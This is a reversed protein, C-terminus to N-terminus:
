SLATLTLTARYTGSGSDVPIKLGLEAGLKASGRTHGNPAFGLTASTALGPGGDIGSAVAAGAVAGAGAEVVAPAWGLAAGGIKKDGSVFDGVQASLSWAAGSLRTDTVRIPNIAGTAALHDGKDQATGLDVIGNTGDVKWVFEGPAADPVAVQLTQEDPAGAHTLTVKDVVSNVAKDAGKAESRLTEVTIAEGTVKVVSYNRVYEQNIVSGYWANPAKVDYYKSGSASNATVYLVQGDQAEVTAQGPVEAANAIAGDKILYSRTYSHDHGQLVLDFGLDSITKPMNARRDVIDSDAQHAAVSYISHHFALVKWKVGAGHEAVVKQMFANHSAYDRSNSNLNVFLVDKYIFWYDGGSSTGSSAAGATTDLNPVNFHQEYAKSGVDHNGNTVVLPLSTLQSPALFATYHDENAAKEVQDGVSFLMEADPYAASAVNLTDTWGAQDAAVNGSAGIQPDGVMLFDFDGSFSRTQFSYVKSWAGAAGVRYLYSTNERLGTITAFRNYEGSTTVAGSAPISTAAAEPFTSGTAASAPAIQAVQAIDVTSYWSLNRQTQDAGIGLVVDSVTPSVVDARVPALSSLDLYADSSSARDQYLAIAITNEGAHLASSPIQFQSTVPDGGGNGAYTLNKQADPVAEVRDDVFGAVKAGNVFIQVADDYTVTGSLGSVQALQDATLDIDTRFHFTPVDTKTGDIYQNLVTAVPFGAGLNPTASGGKAGFAAAGTKWAADDFDGRTWVLRDANGAAPDVNTDSYHWITSPGVFSAPLTDAAQAPASVFLLSGAALAAATGSAFAVRAPRRHRRYGTASSSMRPKRRDISAPSHM